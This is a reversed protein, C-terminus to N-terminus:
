SNAYYDKLDIDTYNMDKNEADFNEDNVEADFTIDDGISGIYDNTANKFLTKEYNGESLCTQFETEMINKIIFIAIHKIYKNDISYIDMIFDCLTQIICEYVKNYSINYSDYFKNIFKIKKVFLDKPLKNKVNSIDTVKINENKLYKLFKENEITGYILNNYFGISNYFHSLSIVIQPEYKNNPLPPRKVNSKVEKVTRGEMAGISNIASKEINSILSIEVISKSNQSWKTFEKPTERNLISDKVKFKDINDIIKNEEIFVKYYKEYYKKDRVGKTLNCKSCSIGNKFDHIGTEPCKILYFNYFINEKSNILFNEEVKKLNLNCAESRKIGTKSDKFDIILRNPTTTKIGILSESGDKFIYTDFNHLKGEENYVCSLMRTKLSRKWMKTARLEMQYLIKNLILVDNIKEENQKLEEININKDVNSIIKMYYKFSIISRGRQIQKLDSFNLKEKKMITNYIQVSKENEYDPQYVNLYTNKKPNNALSTVTTGLIKEIINEYDTISIIEDRPIDIFNTLTSIYLSYNFITDQIIENFIITELSNIRKISFSINSSALEIYIDILNQGIDTNTLQNFVSRHITQFKKVIEDAYKSIDKEKEMDSFRVRVYTKDPNTINVRIMNLIFGYIYMIIIGKMSVTLENTKLFNNIEESVIIVKSKTMIPLINYIMFSCFDFVNIKPTVKLNSFINIGQSWIYKFIEKFTINYTEERIEEFNFDYLKENCIKCFSEFESVIIPNKYKELARDYDDQSGNNFIIKITETIHPCIINFSCKKCTHMKNKENPNAILSLIDKYKYKKEKVTRANRMDRVLVKHICNNNKSMKKYEMIADYEKLILKQNKDNIQRFMQLYNNRPNMNYTDPFYKKILYKISANKNEAKYRNINNIYTQEKDIYDNKLKSLLYPDIEKNYVFDILGQFLSIDTDAIFQKESYFINSYKNKYVSNIDSVFVQYNYDLEVPIMKNEYSVVVKDYKKDKELASNNQDKYYKTTLYLSKYDSIDISNIKLIDIIEREPMILFVKQDLYTFSVKKRSTLRIRLSNKPESKPVYYEWPKNGKTILDLQIHPIMKQDTLIYNIVNEKFSDIKPPIKYNYISDAFSLMESLKLNCGESLETLLERLDYDDITILDKYGKEVNIIRINREM